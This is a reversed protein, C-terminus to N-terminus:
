GLTISTLGSIKGLLLSGLNEGNRWVNDLLLPYHLMLSALTVEDGTRLKGNECAAVRFVNGHLRMLTARRDPLYTFAVTGGVAIDDAKVCEPTSGFGSNSKSDLAKLEEWGDFGLYHAFIDLTTLRPEREDTKFGLLRKVTNVGVHEGLVSEIDLALTECDAPRRIESGLRKEILQRIYTSFVM